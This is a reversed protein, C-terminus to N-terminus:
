HSRRSQLSTLLVELMTGDFTPIDCVAAVDRRERFSDDIFIASRHRIHASKAGGDTIHVLSNFFSSIGLRSVERELDHMHRSVLHVSVGHNRCEVLYALVESSLNGRQVVIDDFDIYVHNYAFDLEYRAALARDVVVDVSNPMIEVSLGIRDYISLLPLNVGRARSFGMGGAVRPAVELLALEGTVARKVQFFWAGRFEIASNLRYAFEDFEPNDASVSGVSIGNAIRSRKRAHSYRLVGAVDTFCDVTYEDGSLYETAMLGPNAQLAERAVGPSSALMVGKSGQGVDPKLFIPYEALPADDASEFVRPTRVIGQCALYTARKSRALRCTALPSAVLGPVLDGAASAEALALVAADHAPVVLDAGSAAAVTGIASVFEPDSATVGIEHYDDFRLRGHDSISSVGVLHIDRVARLSREVELGIESGCPFVLVNLTMRGKWGIVVLCSVYLIM